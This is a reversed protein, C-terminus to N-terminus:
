EANIITDINYAPGQQAEYYIRIAIEAVVGILITQIGVIILLMTLLVLPLLNIGPLGAVYRQYLAFAGILSGVLISIFSFYGLFHIPRTSYDAMFKLVLADLIVKLVRGFGYKSRGTVRPNHRVEVETVRAGEYAMIAPIFRHMEGYLKISKISKAKMAKLACGYDHLPLGFIKSLLWNAIVSPIVRRLYPDNRHKRWGCVLDYGNGLKNVLAPIDAPDNQNDGDLTVIIAGCAFEMGAAIAMTQGFHRSLKIIKVNKDTDAIGELVAFSSDSSGDDVYIIEYDNYHANLVRVINEYLQKISHEENLLPIVLSLMKTKREDGHFSYKGAKSLMSM